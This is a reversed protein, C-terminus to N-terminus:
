IEGKIAEIIRKYVREDYSKWVIILNNQKDINWSNIKSCVLLNDLQTKYKVKEKDFESIITITKFKMKKKEKKKNFSITLEKELEKFCKKCMAGFFAEKECFYCYKNEM